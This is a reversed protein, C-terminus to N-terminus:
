FYQLNVAPKFKLLTIVKNISFLEKLQKQIKNKM